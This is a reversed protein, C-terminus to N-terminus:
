LHIPIIAKTKPTISREIKTPNILGDNQNIDAVVPIAGANVIGTITPFATMNSTIVEDGSGIGLSRLSLTIADTGSAVGVCYKTGIYNSLEEEFKSVENGLIFSGRSLVNSIASDIQSKISQYESIFDNFPIM